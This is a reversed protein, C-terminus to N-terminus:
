KQMNKNFIVESKEAAVESRKAAEEARAAAAEMKAVDADSMESGKNKASCGTIAMGIVLSAAVLRLIMALGGLM